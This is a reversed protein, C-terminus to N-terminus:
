DNLPSLNENDSAQLENYALWAMVSAAIPLVSNDVRFDSTHLGSTPAGNPLATGIRYFCAPIKHSYWAFDESTLRIDLAEVQNGGLFSKANEICRETLSENNVLVPYGRLIDVECHAGHAAAIGQAVQQIKKHLVNRMEEDMTRFTGEISVVDPIVNTAGPAEIKGFSLVVPIDPRAVRSVVSQLALIIEAAIVVPDVLRHPLAAHGGKGKVKLYVEDASAMYRGKRFGVKGTEMDPYVHQAIIYDPVPNELVGENIMLTAGGPLKEEGPQFIAKIIGGWHQKADNLISIAGLLSTIHVDHGCAHMVGKNQSMGEWESEQIPLADMDARLAIVRHGPKDGKLLVVLGTNAMTVPTLGMRCLVDRIYKQTNVECYSLEPNRHLDGRWQVLTQKLAGAKTHIIDKVIEDV